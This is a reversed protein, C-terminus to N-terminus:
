REFALIRGCSPCYALERGSRARAVVMSPVGVRCGLCTNREVLAVARGRKERRLEEYIALASPSLGGAAVQRRRRLEALRSEAAAQLEALSRQQAQWEATMRVLDDRERAMSQELAEIRTMVDLERDEVEARRRRLIEVERRLSELEKPNRVQGEYLRSEEHTLKVSIQQAQLDLDLRTSELEQILRRSDDLARRATVLDETEGIQAQIEVLEQVVADIDLDLLQLQHLARVDISPTQPM